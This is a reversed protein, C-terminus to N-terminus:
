HHDIYNEVIDAEAGLIHDFDRGDAGSIKEKAMRKDM